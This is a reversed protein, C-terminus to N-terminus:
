KEEDKRGSVSAIMLIEDSFTDFLELEHGDLEEQKVVFEKKGKEVDKKIGTFAILQMMLRPLSVKNEEDNEMFKKIDAKDNIYDESVEFIFKVM